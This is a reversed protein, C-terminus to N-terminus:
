REPRFLKPPNDISQLLQDVETTVPTNITIRQRLKRIYDLTAARETADFTTRYVKLLFPLTTAAEKTSNMAGQQALANAAQEGMVFNPSGGPLARSPNLNATAADVQQKAVSSQQQQLLQQQLLQEQQDALQQANILDLIDPSVADANYQGQQLQQVLRQKELMAQRQAAVDPNEGVGANYQGQQMYAALEPDSLNSGLLERQQALPIDLDFEPQPGTGMFADLKAQPDVPGTLLNPNRNARLIETPRDVGTPTADTRYSRESFSTDPNLSVQTELQVLEGSPSITYGQENLQQLKAKYLNENTLTQQQQLEAIRNNLELDLQEPDLGLEEKARKFAIDVGKKNGANLSKGYLDVISAKLAQFEKDQGFVSLDPGQSTQEAQLGEMSGVTPLDEPNQKLVKSLAQQGKGMGYTAGAGLGGGAAAGIATNTLLQAPDLTGTESLQDVANVAGTGVAGAAAGKGAEQLVSQQLTKPLVNPIQSGVQELGRIGVPTNRGAYKALDAWTKAFKATGLYPAAGVVTNAGITWPNFDERQGASIQDAQENAARTGGYAAWIAPAAPGALAALANIGLTGAMDGAFYVGRQNEPISEYDGYGGATAGHGLGQAAYSLTGLLDPQQVQPPQTQKNQPFLDPNEAALDEETYFPM